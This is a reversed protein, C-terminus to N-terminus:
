RPLNILNGFFCQGEYNLGTDICGDPTFTMEGFIATGDINYFDVRVFPFPAALMEAATIMFEYCDPKPITRNTLFYKDYYNLKNKLTLDYFDKKAGYGNLNRDTCVMTCHAKGNFCYVKYDLPLEGFPDGLFAECIIRPRIKDYHVEGWRRGMKQKMWKDLLRKARGRNLKSKDKCIINLKSGHTCKLVFAKPLSDFNIETSRDYVGLLIPLADSLGCSSVYSRVAYKDACQTKLPNRWYLNLWILKEDFTRPNKLSLRKGRLLWYRYKALLLPSIAYLSTRICSGLASDILAIPKENKLRNVITALSKM